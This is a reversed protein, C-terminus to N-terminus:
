AGYVEKCAKFTNVHLKLVYDYSGNEDVQYGGALSWSLPIGLDKAITFMKVDREYMQEETLVGGWPDDVHVDAGAQYIIADPKYKDLATMVKAFYRLYNNSHEPKNFLLGFSIDLYKERQPDIKEIIDRTGNGDHMDCDVIAIRKYGDDEVLKTAAVMLGNFTCFFGMGEFTEYGAHHFGAVLAAVPRKEEISLKAAQYVAGNTYPLSEVVTPCFSGFGNRAKLDFVDDVYKPNHCRKIDERSVAWPEVFECYDCEKKLVEYLWKPKAASPSKPFPFEYLKGNGRQIGKGVAELKSEAVQKEGYVVKIM